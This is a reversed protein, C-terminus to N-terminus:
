CDEIIHLLDEGLLEFFALYFEVLWGDPGLSKDKKFWKLANELVGMSVLKYLDEAVEQDVFQPFLGGVRIIEALTAEQPAKYLNRFHSTNLSTLHHFSHVKQSEEYTM